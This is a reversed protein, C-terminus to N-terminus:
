DQPPDGWAEGDWWMWRGDGSSAEYWGPPAVPVSPDSAKLLRGVHDQGLVAVAAVFSGVALALLSLGLMGGGDDTAEDVQFFAGAAAWVSVSGGVALVM